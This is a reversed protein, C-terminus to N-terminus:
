LTYFAQYYDRAEIKIKTIEYLAKTVAKRSNNHKIAQEYSLLAENVNEIILRIPLIVHM